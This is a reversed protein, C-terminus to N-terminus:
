IEAERVEARGHLITPWGLNNPSSNRSLVKGCSSAPLTELTKPLSLKITENRLFSTPSAAQTAQLSADGDSKRM